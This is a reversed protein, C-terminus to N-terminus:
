YVPIGLGASLQPRTYLILPTQAVLPHKPRAEAKLVELYRDKSAPGMKDMEPARKDASWVSVRKGTVQFCLFFRYPDVDQWTVREYRTPRPNSAGHGSMSRLHMRPPRYCRLLRRPRHLPRHGVLLHVPASITRRRSTQAGSSHRPQPSCLTSAHM